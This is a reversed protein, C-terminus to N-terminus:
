TKKKSKKSPKKMAAEIQEKSTVIDGTPVAYLKGNFFAVCQETERVYGVIDVYTPTKRQAIKKVAITLPENLAKKFAPLKKECNDICERFKEIRREEKRKKAANSIIDFIEDEEKGKLESDPIDLNKVAAMIDM